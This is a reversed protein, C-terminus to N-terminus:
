CGESPVSGGPALCGIQIRPGQRSRVTFGYFKGVWNPRTIEVTIRSGVGLHHKAFGPTILFRGDAACMGKTKKGCRTRKGLLTAHHAFPCGKGHCKVLVTAGPLVGNVVLARVQTFSPTFYFAWQMTSTITGLINAPLPVASVPEAASTSGTFNTDGVYRATIQHAGAASYSVTCTAQGATLTQGTCSAIPQGGDLFEVSGTPEVPGVRAAPPAVAATFTTSSGVSVAATADLVTTTTDPGVALVDVPSASGELVSGSTPTFVATLRAVSAAFSASCAVTASQGSPTVPLNGCGHIASGGDNFTVTGWRATSSGSNSTVTAILTVGQNTVAAPPSALLSTTTPQSAAPTPAAVVTATKNSTAPTSGGLGTATVVCIITSGIDQQSLTYSSSTAGPIPSCSGSGSSPCDEWQHSFQTPSNNWSGNSTVSLTVGQEPNGSIQPATTNVPAPPLVPGVSASTVPTAGGANSATVTVSVFKGVDTAALKYTNSTALSIASCNNGSADCDQWAYTFKTPTNSWTGNSATLTDGQQAIGSIGPAVSDAPAAPLVPGVAATTAPKQGGANSATVVAVIYHTVESAQPTYTSSTAGSIASCGTGSGTCDEWVYAFNTPNNNWSGNSVSLTGGQQATTPSIAPLKTNAPVAPLVPGLSNSTALNQGGANSATVIVEVLSGVDTSQLTYSSSTDNTTSCSGGGGPCDEWVYSFQTPSNSWTGNNTVTLKDGQQATGSLVPAVSNAPAAVLVAATSNSTASSQGGANSATVIVEVVSGVDTSQLTYSSTADNIKSCSGGGGSPCSEWQYAFQTPNNSWTGNNTISLTDGQQAKGSLVPAVSNVPAAPLVPGLSNSTQSSQGGANSATVIVEVVSGVDTSQLTYSNNQDSIPSCIGGGAAPCDEWQYGFQTPNNSWTGNNTVTLKDGQQPTGSLVPAGSNGPAAPLVPGLGNSTATNRGGANSATVVVEVVSGVDTSQLTYSGTADTITSCSGGGTPCDKWAYSFQTPGNSWTGNSTVTLTDGQQATGGITPAASGDPVPAAPLVPGLGNSTASGQGAANSATVVVEITSGVDTSQVAYSSTSTAGSIPACVTGTSNCDEWVYAFHTPSNSWTGNSTVTLTDGQQATGAITPPASTDGAPAAPLVPGAPGSTEKTDGGANSATVVVEITSGVDTSQVTYANSSPAGGISSCVTLAANCDEWVYSFQTPGNDWNGNSVTLTDGQQATGTITPPPGASDPVPAAPLVPGVPDTTVSQQGADNTATVTVSVFQGVDAASLPDTDGVTGDSWLYTYAIPTDGTWTGPDATLTAGQQPVGSISPPPTGVTPGPDASASGVALSFTSAIAM